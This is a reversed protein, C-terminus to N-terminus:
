SMHEREHLSAAYDIAEIDNSKAHFNCDDKTCEYRYPMTKSAVWVEVGRWVWYGLGIGTLLGVTWDTM